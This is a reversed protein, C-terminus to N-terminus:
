LLPVDASPNGWLVSLHRSMRPIYATAIPQVHLWSELCRDNQHPIQQLSRNDIPQKQVYFISLNESIKIQVQIKSNV